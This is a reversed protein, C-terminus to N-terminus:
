VTVPSTWAPIIPFGLQVDDRAAIWEVDSANLATAPFVSIGAWQNSAFPDCLYKYPLTYLQPITLRVVNDPSNYYNFNNLAISTSGDFTHGTYTLEEGIVTYNRYRVGGCRFLFAARWSGFFTNRFRWYTHYNFTNTTLLDPQVDLMEDLMGQFPAPAGSVASTTLTSYRKCIDPISGLMETTCFGSDSQFKVGEGIPPFTKQFQEGISCQVEFGNPRAKMGKAFPQGNEPVDFTPSTNNWNAPLVPQPFAFQIDEGGAVWVLCYIKPTSGADNSVFDAIPVITIKPGDNRTWWHKDLWPVTFTDITDGRVDVIRTLGATTDSPVASEINPNYIQVAFRSTIFASTVFQLMVKITGRWMLASYRAYDLPIRYFTADDNHSTILPITQITTSQTFTKAPMRLGPIQAYQSITMDKSLPVRATGPDLYRKKYIAINVNTDDIDTAYLDAMPERIIRTQPEAVDPKDLIAFLGDALEAFPSILSSIMSSPKPIDPAPITTVADYMDTAQGGIDNVFRSLGRKPYKVKLASTGSQVKFGSSHRKPKDDEKEVKETLTYSQACPYALEVDTLRAWVQISVTEGANSSAVTLPALVDLSLYIPNNGNNIDKCLLWAEPWMYSIRKIVANASSASITVPDIVMREDVVGGTGFTPWLTAGLLGYYFATTNLRISVEIGARILNFQSIVQKNRAYALLLQHLDGLYLQGTSATTWALQTILCMRELLSTDKFEGGSTAKLTDHSVETLQTEGVEGFSLTPTQFLATEAPATLTQETTSQMTETAQRKTETIGILSGSTFFRVHANHHHGEM